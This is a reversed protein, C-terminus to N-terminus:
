RRWWRIMGNASMTCCIAVADSVFGALCLASELDRVKLAGDLFASSM